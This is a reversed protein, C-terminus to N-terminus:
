LEMKAQCDSKIIYKLIKTVMFYVNTARLINITPAKQFTIQMSSFVYSGLVSGLPVGCRISSVDSTVSKFTVIQKRNTLKTKFWQM